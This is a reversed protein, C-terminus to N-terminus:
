GGFKGEKYEKALKALKDIPDVPQSPFLEENISSMAEDTTSTQDEPALLQKYEKYLKVATHPYEYMYDLAAVFGAFFVFHRRAHEEPSIGRNTDYDDDGIYLHLLGALTNYIQKARPAKNNFHDLM